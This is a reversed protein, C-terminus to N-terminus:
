KIQVFEPSRGYALIYNNVNNIMLSYNERPIERNKVNAVEPMVGNKNKFDIIDNVMKRYETITLDTM